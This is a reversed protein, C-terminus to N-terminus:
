MQSSALNRPADCKEVRSRRLLALAAYPLSEAVVCLPLVIELAPSVTGSSTKCSLSVSKESGEGDGREELICAAVHPEVKVVVRAVLELQRRRLM